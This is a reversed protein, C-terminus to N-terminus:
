SVPISYKAMKDRLTTRPIGLRQAARAQNGGCSRLAMLILRREIDAVTETLGLHTQEPAELPPPAMPVSAGPLPLIHEPRIEGGNCFALAREIVHELERANGPWSHRLLEDLAHPNISIARHPVGGSQAASPAARPGTEMAHSADGAAPNGVQMVNAASTENAASGAGRNGALAAHKEAFHQALVLIDDRRDRLPPITLSIVNLRYYLDERFRGEKVLHLLDRKTSCILRAEARIPTDGGVREFMQTEVVSLLKAQVELPLDDVDDLLLTGGDALEFRGAKQRAAGAFAGKEHGFLESELVAAPQAACSFRLLPKEARRSAAHIAEAFLEKGTGSEGCLLITRDADAAARAQEFLRKMSPSRAILRGFMETERCQGAFVRTAFLRELKEVLEQTTFPKTIYDYAGRKLALVATDVSAYATMLIVPVSPQVAKVHALLDLGSLGPMRVDSVVVDVHKNDLISRAAQGDAAEYIQYGAESLEIQLTIRKLPEDDVVLVALGNSQAKSDTTHM